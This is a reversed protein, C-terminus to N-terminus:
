PTVESGRDVTVPGGCIRGRVLKGDPRRLLAIRGNEVLLIEARAFQDSERERELYTEYDPREHAENKAEREERADNECRIREWREWQEKTPVKV